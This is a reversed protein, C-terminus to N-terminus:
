TLEVGADIMGFFRTDVLVASRATDYDVVRGVMGALNSNGNTKEVKQANGGDDVYVTEGIITADLTDTTDPLWVACGPLLIKVQDGAVPNNGAQVAPPTNAIFGILVLTAVDDAYRLTGTGIAAAAITGAYMKGTAGATLVMDVYTPDGVPRLDWPTTAVTIAM